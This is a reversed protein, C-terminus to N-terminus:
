PSNPLCGYRRLIDTRSGLHAPLDRVPIGSLVMLEHTDFIGYRHDKFVIVKDRNQQALERRRRATGQGDLLSYALSPMMDPTSTSPSPKLQPDTVLPLHSALHTASAPPPTLRDTVEGTQPDIQRYAVPPQTPNAPNEVSQKDWLRYATAVAFILMVFVLHSRVGAESKQPFWRTLRGFQKNQRFLGNEIWSRDDYADVVLWPNTVNLNTLYVRVGGAPRDNHWQQVVVANLAPRDRRALHKGPQKPPRYAAWDRLDTVARVRSVVTEIWAQSGHGHARTEVREHILARQSLRCATAYIKMNTKAIVVFKIGLEHLAYLSPGDVYARDVVLWRIRSYPELNQQAQRVLELLYPAEHSQIRVIKLALPILTVLDVLVILRWGFMLVVEKVEVGARNRRTHKQRQCGCGVYTAPTVVPTGDVMVEAMFVGFAALCHITGNFLRALEEVSAQSITEALTQPDMLVYRSAETRAAASRQSLGHAVQYATFGLLSMVAVNSFLLQPLANSSGIGFLVRVGYLLVFSIAPLFVRQVAELHFSQWQSMVKTEQLFVFFGDLLGAEDLTHVGDVGTGSALAQAVFPDDREAFHWDLQEALNTRVDTTTQRQYGM